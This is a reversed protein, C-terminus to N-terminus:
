AATALARLPQPARTALRLFAATPTAADARAVLAVDFAPTPPALPKFRVGPTTLRAQASVPLLAIGTGAAVALLVQELAPEAIEVLAPAIGAARCAALVGDHFAPDISRALQVLATRQLGGLAIERENACPHDEPVAAVMQETAIPVVRLGSVPAPLCMVALDIRGERVDELLRRASGIELTVAIGPAAAAFHRLLRPVVPPLVDPLYGLRVRGLAREHAERAARRAVDAQTLVRRAEDLMAAGAPTLGVARQTRTFLQVGLEAELKRIQESIAPQAVHLREAARRFHLEEAVAVFYRLHRLEM